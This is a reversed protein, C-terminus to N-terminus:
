KWALPPTSISRTKWTNEGRVMTVEFPQWIQNNHTAEGQIVVVQPNSVADIRMGTWRYDSVQGFFTKRVTAAGNRDAQARDGIGLLQAAKDYEGENILTMIVAPHTPGLIALARDYLDKAESAHGRQKYLKSLEHLSQGVAPHQPGFAQERIALSRKLFAEAGGLQGQMEYLVALNSLSQCVDPNDQGFLGERITLARMLIPEADLYRHQIRLTWALKDLQLAVGSHASGHRAEALEVARQAVLSAQALNGSQILAAVDHDLKLIAEDSQVFLPPTVILMVLSTLGSHKLSRLLGHFFEYASCLIHVIM